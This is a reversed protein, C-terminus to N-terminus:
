EEGKAKCFPVQCKRSYIVTDGCIEQFQVLQTQPPPLNTSTHSSFLYPSRLTGISGESVFNGNYFSCASIINKM